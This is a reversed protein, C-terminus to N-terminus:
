APRRTFQEKVCPGRETLRERSVYEVYVETVQVDELLKNKVFRIFDTELIGGKVFAQAPKMPDFSESFVWGDYSVSNIKYVKKNWAKLMELLDIRERPMLDIHSYGRQQVFERTINQESGWEVCEWSTNEFTDHTHINLAHGIAFIVIFLGILAAVALALALDAVWSGELNEPQYKKRTM